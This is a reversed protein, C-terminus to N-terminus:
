IQDAPSALYAKGTSLPRGDGLVGQVFPSDGESVLWGGETSATSTKQRAQSLKSASRTMTCATPERSFTERMTATFPNTFAPGSEVVMGLHQVARGVQKTSAKPSIPRWLRVATPTDARGSLTATSILM